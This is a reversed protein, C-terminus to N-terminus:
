GCGGAGCTSGCGGGGLQLNSKLDFGAYTFDLTVPQAQEHLQKDMVFTFGDTEM